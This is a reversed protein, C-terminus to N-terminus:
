YSVKQADSKLFNLELIGIVKLSARYDQLLETRFVQDNAYKWEDVSWKLVVDKPEGTYGFKYSLFSFCYDVLDSRLIISYDGQHRNFGHAPLNNNVGSLICTKCYDIYEYGRSGVPKDM